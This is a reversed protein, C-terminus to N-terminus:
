KKGQLRDLMGKFFTAISSTRSSAPEIPKPYFERLHSHAYEFLSSHYIIGDKQYHTNSLGKFQHMEDKSLAFSQFRAISSSPHTM